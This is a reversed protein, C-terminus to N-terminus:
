CTKVKKKNEIKKATPNYFFKKEPDIYIYCTLVHISQM